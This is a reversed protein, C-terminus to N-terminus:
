LKLVGKRKTPAGDNTTEQGSLRDKFVRNLITSDVNTVDGGEITLGGQAEMDAKIDQIIQGRSLREGAKAAQDQEAVIQDTMKVAFQGFQEPDNRTGFWKTFADPGLGADTLLAGTQDVDVSTPKTVRPPRVKNLEAINKLRRTDVVQQVEAQIATAQEPTIGPRVDTLVTPDEAITILKADTPLTNFEARRQEGAEKETKAALAVEEQQKNAAQQGLQLAMAPRGAGSAIQAAKLFFDASGAQAGAEGETLAQMQRALDMSERAALVDPDKAVQEDVQDGFLGRALGGGFSSGVMLGLREEQSGAGALLTDLLEQQRQTQEEVLRRGVRRETDPLSAGALGFLGKGNAM